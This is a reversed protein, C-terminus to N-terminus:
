EIAVHLHDLEGHGFLTVPDDGFLFIFPRLLYTGEKVVLLHAANALM